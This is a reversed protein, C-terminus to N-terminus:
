VNEREFLPSPLSKDRHAYFERVAQMREKSSEQIIVCVHGIDVRASLIKEYKLTSMLIFSVLEWDTRVLSQQFYYEETWESLSPISHYSMDELQIQDTDGTCRSNRVKVLKETSKYSVVCSEYKTSSLTTAYLLTSDTRVIDSLISFTRESLIERTRPPPPIMRTDGIGIHYENNHYGLIGLVLDKDHYMTYLIACIDDALGLSEELTNPLIFSM